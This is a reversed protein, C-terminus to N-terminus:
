RKSRVSVLPRLSYQEASIITGVDNGYRLVSFVRFSLEFAWWKM